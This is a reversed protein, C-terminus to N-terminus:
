GYVRPGLLKVRMMEGQAFSPPVVRISVRKWSAFSTPSGADPLRAPQNWRVAAKRPPPMRDHGPAGWGIRLLGLIRDIALHDGPSFNPLRISMIRNSAVRKRTVMADTADFGRISDGSAMSGLGGVAGLATSSKEASRGPGGASTASSHSARAAADGFRYASYLEGQPELMELPCFRGALEEESDDAVGVPV